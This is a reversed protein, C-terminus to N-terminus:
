LVKVATNIMTKFDRILSFHRISDLNWKMKEPLIQKLYVEDVDEASDMMQQEDKFMISAKSTIGAPMLLTAYYEKEYAKVYRVVEPRTGVFSMNGDIVDFLQPLEDLRYKRLFAGIKTIRSDNGATVSPGKREANVCMTRFKHIRFRKGYATVRVQRFFVPGRSSCKILISIILMPFALVGLLFIAFIVDFLRKIRLETKRKRLAEWYPKVKENRMFSPLDNWDRFGM